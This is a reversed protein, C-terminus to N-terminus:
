PEAWRFGAGRGAGFDAMPKPPPPKRWVRTMSLATHGDVGLHQRDEPDDVAELMVSPSNIIGVVRFVQGAPSVYLDGLEADRM